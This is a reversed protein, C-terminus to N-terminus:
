SNCKLYQVSYAPLLCGNTVDVTNGTLLDVTHPAHYSFSAYFDERDLNIACLITEEGTERAFVIQKNTLFVKQYNGDILAPHSRHLDSLKALFATLENEEPRDFCPRLAADSERTRTGLAGWESGYYICPIGPAAFLLAYVLPLHEPHNLVSAIRNVDHNDLFNLPHAHPFQENFQQNLTYNIEFLNESNFSSWFGKHAQYNTVSHLLENNMLQQYNGHIMEGVLFFDQKKADTFRRLEQMFPHPLSYAVDLRLGDIDFEDIWYGVCDLLYRVVDPHYLNLKVLEQHGEWGEYSLGDQYENNGWFNVQHFWDRYPSAERQHLLDQFAWFGRGVHNFVGDLIVRIGHDHLAKCVDKLDENTGLRCDLTRFDRTDYGHRDSQWIPCFYVATIGLKELHPIWDLVKRIRSVTMGDNESPAGCFGFPYIQYIVSEEYWM